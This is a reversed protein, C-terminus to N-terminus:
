YKKQILLIFKDLNKILEDIPARVVKNSMHSAYVSNLSKPHITNRLHNIDDLYNKWTQNKFFGAKNFVDLLYGLGTSKNSLKEAAIVSTLNDKQKANTKYEFFDFLLGEYIAAALQCLVLKHQWGFTLSPKLFEYISRHYDLCMRLEALNNRLELDIVFSFIPRYDSQLTKSIRRGDSSEKRWYCFKDPLLQLNNHVLYFANELDEFNKETIKQIPM